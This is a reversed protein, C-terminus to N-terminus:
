NILYLRGSKKPALQIKLVNVKFQKEKSSKYSYAM